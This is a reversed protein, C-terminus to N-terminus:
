AARGSEAWVPRYVDGLAVGLHNRLGLMIRMYRGGLQGQPIHLGTEYRHVVRPHVGLARAIRSMSFGCSERIGRLDLRGALQRMELNTM